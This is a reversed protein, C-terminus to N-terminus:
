KKKELKVIREEMETFDYPVHSHQMIEFFMDSFQEPTYGRQDKIMLGLKDCWVKIQSETM